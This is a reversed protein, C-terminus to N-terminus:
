PAGPPLQPGLPVHGIIGKTGNEIMDGLTQDFARGFFHAFKKALPKPLHRKEFARILKKEVVTNFVKRAAKGGGANLGEYYGTTVISVFEAASAITEAVERYPGCVPFVTCVDVLYTEYESIKDMGTTLIAEV